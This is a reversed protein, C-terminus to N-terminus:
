NKYKEPYFMVHYVPQNKEKTAQVRGDLELLLLRGDLWEQAEKSMRYENPRTSTEPAFYMIDVTTGKLHSSTYGQAANDNGKRLTDQYKETRIASSIVMRQKFKAYFEDALTDLRERVYPLVCQYLHRSEERAREGMGPDILFHDSAGPKLEVLRGEKLAERIEVESHFNKFGFHEAAEVEREMGHDKRGNLSPYIKERASEQSPVVQPSVIEFDKVDSPPSDQDSVPEKADNKQRIPAKIESGTKMGAITQKQEDNLEPYVMVHYHANEITAQLKFVSESALLRESLWQQEEDALRYEEAHKADKPLHIALDVSAGRLHTSRYEPAVLPNVKRLDDVYGKTRVASNVILKRHFTHQFDKAVSKLWEATSPLLSAYLPRSERSALEGLGADIVYGDEKAPHIDVLEGNKIADQLDKETEFMKLGLYESVAVEKELGHDKKTNLSVEKSFPSGEASRANQMHMSQNHSAHHRPKKAEANQEALLLSSALLIARSARSGTFRKASRQEQPSTESPLVSHEFSM